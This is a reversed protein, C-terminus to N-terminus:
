GRSIIYSAVHLSKQDHVNLSKFKKDHLQPNVFYIIQNPLTNAVSVCNVLTALCNGQQWIKVRCPTYVYMCLSGLNKKQRDQCAVRFIVLWALKNCAYSKYSAIYIYSHLHPVFISNVNMFYVPPLKLLTPRYHFHHKAMKFQLFKSM